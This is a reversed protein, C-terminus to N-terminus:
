KHWYTFFVGLMGNTLYYRNSSVSGSRNLMTSSSWDLITLEHLRDPDLRISGVINHNSDELVVVSNPEVEASHRFLLEVPNNM